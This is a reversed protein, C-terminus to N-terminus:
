ICTILFFKPFIFDPLTLISCSNLADNSDVIYIQPTTALRSITTLRRHNSSRTARHHNRFRRTSAPDVRGQVRVVNRLPVQYRSNLQSSRTSLQVYSTSNYTARSYISRYPPSVHSISPTSPTDRRSPRWGDDDIPPNRLRHYRLLSAGSHNDVLALSSFLPDVQWRCSPSPLRESSLALIWDHQAGHGHCALHRRHYRLLFHRLTARCHRLRSGTTTTQRARSTPRHCGNRM